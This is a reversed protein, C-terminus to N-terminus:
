ARRAIPQGLKVPAGATLTWRLRGPETLLIVTSGMNFRGLEAARGIPLAPSLRVDEGGGGTNTVLQAVVTTM